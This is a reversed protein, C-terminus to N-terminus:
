RRRAVLVGLMFAVALSPLPAECVLDSVIRKWQGPTQGDELAHRAERAVGRITASAQEVASPQDTSPEIPM